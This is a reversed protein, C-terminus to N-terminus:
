AGRYTHGKIVELIERVVGREEGDRVCHGALVRGDLRDRSCCCGGLRM